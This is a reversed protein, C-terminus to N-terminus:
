NLSRQASSAAISYSRAVVIESDLLGRSCKAKASKSSTQVNMLSTYCIQYERVRKRLRAQFKVFSFGYVFFYQLFLINLGCQHTNDNNLYM